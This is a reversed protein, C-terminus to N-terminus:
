DKAESDKSQNETDSKRTRPIIRIITRKPGQNVLAPPLGMKKLRENIMEPTIREKKSQKSMNEEETNGSM